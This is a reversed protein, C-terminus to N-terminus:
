FGLRVGVYVSGPEGAQLLADDLTARDRVALQGVHEKDLLNRVEAFVTWREREIGARLGLLQYAGVRYSNSFDAHRAGVLDFTPGTYFGGDHRYMVEGRVVYGPAAPLDNDGYVPDGDFSLANYTASVLAEIRHAGGALPFSAGALAEIGAHVTREINTTLSTGPAAPDEVSLIADRIRAYYASVDWHWGPAGAADPTGGRLGVEVVNGSMADLTSGDGRVDDELEFTTPAEYLGSVSGYAEAGAGLARILGIRPNFSSYDAEPNRLSGTAVDTTRVDRDTLVGQAGYVLTWDPAFNWRDLLFMEVSNSRNDILESLGNRRGGDNRYNGGTERTAALNIGALVDHAGVRVNYRAMGAWTRQDTNKLLSFVEVPPLPGPGDFDVMVKDVIPHYLHQDDWSLGFELRRDGDVQWRGKAALRSTRVNLQFHGSIASAQAQYPDDDFEARTLPGALEEDSDIWTAFVRLEFDDRPQWGANAYLGARDQRSHGRYGDREKADLTLQGDLNGSIGGFTLRGNWLGHSGATFFAQHGPSNRATPSTFDIAGGLNSAGWALANAGRAVVVHRASMPDLARNHNNGDATSVPLGDQFLKMGNADLNSGRSSFYVADGGTGSQTWIGPVYRLADSMHNVPRQYFTEGDVASVGGPTRAREAEHANRHGRVEIADLTTAQPAAAVEHDVGGAAASFSAFLAAVAVAPCPSRTAASFPIPM